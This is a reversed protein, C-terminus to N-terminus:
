ENILTRLEGKAKVLQVEAVKYNLLSTNLNNQADAYAQEAELLESLTALGNKYNNATNDLVENALKVNAQNTNVTLLSNRVQAKANENGLSLGLKTDVLDIEAKKIEVDAQRVKSRTKFGTFIPFSLNVGLTSFNSWSAEPRGHFFPVKSGFGTYGYNASLSLTPYYAAIEAKKNLTLLELQKDLLRVETRNNVDAFDMLIAGDVEFTEKPLEIARTIEMGLAFKLANEKLELANLLQQKQALLNNANVVIRDLDIKKALGAQFLGEIIKKSKNVNDINTQVTNMNLQSTYVDYYAVAVKEILQEETLDNNIIYFERTTSAAKLGTFVSQNFIQQNLSLTPTSQWKQGFEALITEGPKGMFDGPIAVKQIIPNYTLGASATIQPLAASRVEDIKNQANIVDLKSKKADAKNELAFKIAQQLTLVEQAQVQSMQLVLGVALVGLYRLKM